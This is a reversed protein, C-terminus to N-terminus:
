PFKTFPVRNHDQKLRVAGEVVERLQLALEREVAMPAGKGRRAGGTANDDGDGLEEEGGEGGNDKLRNNRATDSTNKTIAEAPRERDDCDVDVGADGGFLLDGEHLGDHGQDAVGQLAQRHDNAVEVGDLTVLGPVVDLHALPVTSAVALLRSGDVRDELAQHLDRLGVEGAASKLVTDGAELAPDVQREHVAFLDVQKITM